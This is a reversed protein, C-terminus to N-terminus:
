AQLTTSFRDAVSELPSTTTAEFYPTVGTSFRLLHADLDTGFWSNLHDFVYQTGSVAWPVLLDALTDFPSQWYDQKWGIKFTQSIKKLEFDFPLDKVFRGGIPVYISLTYTTSPSYNGFGSIQATMFTKIDQIVEGNQSISLSSYTPLSNMIADILDGDLDINVGLVTVYSNPKPLLEAGTGATDVEDQTITYNFISNDAWRQGQWNRQVNNWIQYGNQYNGFQALLRPYQTGNPEEHVVPTIATYYSSSVSPYCSVTYDRYFLQSGSGFWNPDNEITYTQSAKIDVHITFNVTFGVVVGELWPVLYKGRINPSTTCGPTLMTCALVLAVLCVTLLPKANM